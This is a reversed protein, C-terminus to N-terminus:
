KGLLVDNDTVEDIYEDSKTGVATATPSESTDDSSTDQDVMTV